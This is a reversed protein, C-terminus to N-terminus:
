LQTCSRWLAPKLILVTHCVLHLCPCTLLMMCFESAAGQAIAALSILLVVLEPMPFHLLSPTNWRSYMFAALIILHLVMVVALLVALWFLVRLLRKYPNTENTGM